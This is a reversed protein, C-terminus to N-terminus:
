SRSIGGKSQPLFKKAEHLKKEMFYISGQGSGGMSKVEELSEQATNFAKEAVELAAEAEKRMNEAKETANKAKRLAAEQNIKASRLGLTDKSLHQELENKARNRSVIGKTEDTSAFKLRETENKYEDEMKKLENCAREVDAETEKQLKEAKKALDTKKISVKLKENAEEFAKQAKEIEEKNANQPQSFLLLCYM